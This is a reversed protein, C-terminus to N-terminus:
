APALRPGFRSEGELISDLLQETLRARVQAYEPRDYLNEFEGPDEKLDYLKGFPEGVYHTLRWRETTLTKLRMGVVAIRTTESIIMSLWCHSSRLKM